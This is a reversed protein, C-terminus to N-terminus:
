MRDKHLIEQVQEGVPLSSGSLGFSNARAEVLPLDYLYNVLMTASSQIGAQSVNAMWNIRHFCAGNRLHFRAVDDLPLLPQTSGKVIAKEVAIYYSGLWLM